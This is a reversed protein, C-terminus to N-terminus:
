PAANGPNLGAGLKSQIRARAEDEATILAANWAHRAEFKRGATFLADGLHEHIEAEAPQGAAAQTLTAIAQDVRGRKFQAWGLSDTISGDDPKLRHAETILAEAADLNEGRELQAYGLYNLVTPNQPALKRATELAARAQDWQKSRDLMAGYLLYLQWRETSEPPLLAIARAYAAAGEPNRDLEDFMDGLRGWDTASADPGQAFAQARALAEQERGAKVLARIEADRVQPAFLSREDIGRLAVLADDTRDAQGLLLGLLVRAPENAPDAYRAVQVMAIPLAQGNERNLDLALATLLTAFGQAATEIAGGPRRGAQVLARAKHTTPDSGDLFALARQPDRLQMYGDAIAIRLPVARGGAQAVAQRAFPEAEAGRKLRLLMLARLEPVIPSSVSGAPIASLVSLAAPNRREALAWAQVPQVLFNLSGSDSPLNLLAIAQDPKRTRLREATLLLRADLALSAPQRASALRLALPMDGASIAQSIARNAVISNTPDAASLAAYLVAARRPDGQLEAARAGVFTSPGSPRYASTSALAPAAALALALGLSCTRITRAM